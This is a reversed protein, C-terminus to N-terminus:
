NDKKTADATPAFCAQAMLTPLERSKAVADRWVGLCARRALASFNLGKVIVHMEPKSLEYDPFNYDRLRSKPDMRNRECVIEGINAPTQGRNIQEATPEHCQLWNGDAGKALYATQDNAGERAIPYGVTTADVAAVVIADVMDKTRLKRQPLFCTIPPTDSSSHSSSVLATVQPAWRDVAQESSSNEQPHHETSMTRIHMTIRVPHRNNNVIRCKSNRHSRIIRPMQLCEEVARWMRTGTLPLVQATQLVQEM